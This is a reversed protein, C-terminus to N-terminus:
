GAIVIGDFIDFADYGMVQYYGQIKYDICKLWGQKGDNARLKFWYKGYVRVIELSEGAQPIFSIVDDSYDRSLTSTGSAYDWLVYYDTEFYTSDIEELLVCYEKLVLSPQYGVIQAVYYDEKLKREAGDCFYHGYYWVDSFNETRTLCTVMGAADFYETPDFDDRWAGDFKVDMLGGMYTLDQGDWWYLYTFAKESDALDQYPDTFAIELIDDSIDVDTIAFLQALGPIDITFNLAAIRLNSSTEGATFEIQEPMGDCDLDVVARSQYIDFLVDGSGASDPVEGFQTPSPSPSSPSPTPAITPSLSPNPTSETTQSPVSSTETESVQRICSVLMLLLMIVLMIIIIRKM